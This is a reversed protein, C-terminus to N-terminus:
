LTSLLKPLEASFRGKALVKACGKETAAQIIEIKEHDIFGVSPVQSTAPDGKLRELAPLAEPLRLDLIVVKAGAATAQLAAADRAQAAELGLQAATERIKSTFLLDRVLYVVKGAM